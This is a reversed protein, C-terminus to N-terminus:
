PDSVKRGGADYVEVTRGSGALAAMIPEREGVAVIHLRRTDLYRTAMRKVDSATVAMIREPVTDWYNSPLRQLWRTVHYGLMRRPSELTLAFGAVMARKHQQLEREPVPQERLRAIERMLDDFAPKTVASGVETSANWHGWTRDAFLSSFAGYTYGREERLKVFLRGTPGAGIIQNMVLLADYDDHTRGVAPAGILLNTQVSHPRAIVRVTPAEPRRVASTAPDPEGAPRWSGFAREVVRRVSVTSVDGSLVLVARDSVYRAHHLAALEAPTAGNLVGAMPAVRGAPDDGYMARALTERALFSPSAREQRLAGLMHRRVHELADRRFAPRQVVEALLEIVAALHESLCSGSVTADPSAPAASVELSAGLLDLRRSLAESDLDATGERLMAAALTARGVRNPSDFYGGAGRVVLTFHVHPLRADELVMVHLGNPLDIAAPRPLRVRLMAESVPANGKLVVATGARGAEGAVQAGAAESLAGTIVFAIM